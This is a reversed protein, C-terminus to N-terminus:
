IINYEIRGRVELNPYIRKLDPQQLKVRIHETVLDVAVMNDTRQPPQPPQPPQPLQHNTLLCHTQM